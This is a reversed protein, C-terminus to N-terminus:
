SYKKKMETFRQNAQESDRKHAAEKIQLEQLYATKMEEQNNSFTFLDRQLQDITQSLGQKETLLLKYKGSLEQDKFNDMLFNAQHSLQRACEEWDDIEEGDM